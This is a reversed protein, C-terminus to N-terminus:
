MMGPAPLRQRAPVTYHATIISASVSTDAKPPAPLDDQKGCASLIFLLMLGTSRRLAGGYRTM